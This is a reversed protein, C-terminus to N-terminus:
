EKKTYEDLRTLARLVERIRLKSPRRTTPLLDWILIVIAEETLHETMKKANAAAKKIEESITKTSIETEHFIEVIRKVQQEGM